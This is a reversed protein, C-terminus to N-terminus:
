YYATNNGPVVLEEGSIQLLCTCPENLQHAATRWARTVFVYFCSDGLDQVKSKELLLAFSRFDAPKVEEM